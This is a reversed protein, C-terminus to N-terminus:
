SIVIRGGEGTIEVPREEDDLTVTVIARKM